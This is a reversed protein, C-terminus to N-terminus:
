TTGQSGMIEYVTWVSLLKRTVEIITRIMKTKMVKRMQKLSTLRRFIMQIISALSM